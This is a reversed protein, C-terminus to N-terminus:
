KLVELTTWVLRHDSSSERSNVLRFLPSSPAPWFVGSNKVSLGYQSPIVYDARMGWQATHTHANPNDKLNERGGESDPATVRAASPHTLLAQIAERLGDGEVPSANLDGMIVFRQATKLGGRKGNDDYIYRSSDVDIYDRWFRLEDHNRKGNRNEPGDFVPPTPHAALVHITYGNVVVPIDWHSKSSLRLGKWANDSYYNSGDERRPVLANPMDSWLFHQFTRVNKEDIPFRSLLAMGYHGPYFGFGFADDPLSRKGDQNLDLHSIVGTNVPAIYTYPYKIPEAGNQSVSLYHQQFAGIGQQQDPIYDFENLLLIDPRVRQIIEAVNKVQPHDGTALISRLTHIGLRDGTPEEAGASSYNRAEMSVNFTAFTAHM